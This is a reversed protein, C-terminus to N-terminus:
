DEVIELVELEFILDKGALPHNADLVVEDDNLETITVNMMRGDRTPVSLAMGVEPKIHEPFHDLPVKLLMDEQPQGYAMDAPIHVKKKEGTEMGLVGEDFGKIVQGAGVTFTFPERDKSSDFVEGNELTGTYHLKVKDGDKVKGM